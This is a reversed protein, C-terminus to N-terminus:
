KKVEYPEIGFNEGVSDFYGKHYKVRKTAVNKLEDFTNGEFWKRISKVIADEIKM